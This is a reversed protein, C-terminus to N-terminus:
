WPEGWHGSLCHRLGTDPHKWIHPSDGFPELVLPLGCHRCMPEVASAPEPPPPEEHPVNGGGLEAWADETM